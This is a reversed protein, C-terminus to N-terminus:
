LGPHGLRRLVGGVDMGVDGIEIAALDAAQGLREIIGGIAIFGRVRQPGQDLPHHQHGAVPTALDM